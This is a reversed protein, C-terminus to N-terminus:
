DVTYLDGERECDHFESNDANPGNGDPTGRAHASQCHQAPLTEPHSAEGPWEKQPSAAATRSSAHLATVMTSDNAGSTASYNKSATAADGAASSPRVASAAAAEEGVYKAANAMYEDEEPAVAQGLELQAHLLQMQPSGAPLLCSIM